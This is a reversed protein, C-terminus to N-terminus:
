IEVGDRYVKCSVSDTFCARSIEGKLVKNHIDIRNNKFTNYTEEDRFGRGTGTTGTKFSTLFQIVGNLNRYLSAGLEPIGMKLKNKTINFFKGSPSGVVIGEETLWVPVDAFDKEPTGLTWGLEPLNNCYALTGKISGPGADQVTMQEPITGALFLTKKKMGIFLGTTVKAIMTVTDEFSYKNSTLKYWGLNFAESYYVNQGVSGWIRGFAYCLNEMYPPPSCLFSPLPEITPIDVVRDTAGVKYFISENSDTVWVLAGSPRNLIKIGGEASLTIETIPGNGSLQNDSVNTMCVKYTGAPLNGNDTTLMPGPPVAVGWQSISNNYPNFVGQWYPNSCYVKNEVDIYSLPSKSGYVTGINVATGQSIRYLISDAVCLMCTKGAWLSHANQLGLYLTTGQRRKLSGDLNVDANLIVRPSLLGKSTLFQENVNNAGSFGKTNIESM